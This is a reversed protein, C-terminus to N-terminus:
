QGLGTMSRMIGLVAPALLVIFLSPFICFVLPFVIKVTTKAAMEEARQRRKLRITDAFAGLARAIPTGFKETQALMSAFANMDKLQSRAAMDAWAHIRPKGARQEGNIQLLEEAIQPHSIGLEQSVRLLAQDIGLGADVCIVLLDIADPISRRIQERRRAILRTLLINPLLFAVAPLALMWFPRAWPIAVAAGLAGVPALLRAANYLDAAHRGKCGAESLRRAVDGKDALGLQARLWNIAALVLTTKGSGTGGSVIINLRARVAAQLLELMQATLARNRLLDDASLPKSGFRRISVLPGDVALPPIVVNVRSGDLLRADVMPSSEDIRRGVASVIKDIVHMLHAEDQFVISTKEIM